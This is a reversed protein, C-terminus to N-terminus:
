KVTFSTWDVHDYVMVDDAKKMGLKEYFPVAKDNAILYVAVDKEGGALEHAKKMLASGIGQHVCSRDVGLDTIYLWYAYDTLGLLVGVLKGEADRAALSISAKELLRPIREEFREAPYQSGLDTRKLFDVYEGADLREEKISYGDQLDYVMIFEEGREELIRFGTNRYMRYAPNDKQVSLSIRRYGNEKLLGLMGKLLRTGYGKGRYEKYLAIALSPTEKDVHGYDDMIRTWVAGVVRGDEEAALCYDAPGTGFAEYYLALEPRDIISRDPQAMGEPVFIAEYLFDKLLDTEDERLKRLIM